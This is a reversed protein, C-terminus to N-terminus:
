ECRIYYNKSIQQIYGKIELGTLVRIVEPASLQVDQILQDVSKPYLGVSSYVMNEERELMKKKEQKKGTLQSSLHLDELLMEPSILIGAGQHILLNCGKSLESYIPGPLAWVDRGQDLAMDATILSGSKEKAEIVLVCDSLGSIIRNRRPFNYAMPQTGPPLESLIGGGHELIDMYLGINERPYCIDVGCGLVAYTKGNAILAGRQAAGDIGRALGSIVEVGADALANAFTGAYKEGYKTCNRAGVIAASMGNGEPLKGKGFLAYPHDTIMKLKEPYTEENYICMWMGQMKMKEYDAEFTTMKKALKLRKRDEETLFAMRELETEEIYYIDKALHYCERLKKKKRHSIGILSAFWYEFPRDEEWVSEDFQTKTRRKNQDM